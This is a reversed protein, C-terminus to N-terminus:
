NGSIDYFVAKPESEVKTVNRYSISSAKTKWAWSSSPIFQRIIKWNAGDSIIMVSQDQLWLSCHPQGEIFQLAKPAITIIPTPAITSFNSISYIRGACTTADPLSATTAKDGTFVLTQDIASLTTDKSFSRYAVSDSKRFILDPNKLVLDNYM